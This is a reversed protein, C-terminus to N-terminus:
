NLCRFEIYDWHCAGTTGGVNEIDFDRPSFDHAVTLMRNCFYRFDVQIVSGPTTSILYTCRRHRFAPM